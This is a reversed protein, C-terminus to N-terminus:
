HILYIQLKYVNLTITIYNYVNRSIIKYLENLLDLSKKGSKQKTYQKLNQLLLRCNFSFNWKFKM